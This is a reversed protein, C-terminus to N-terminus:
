TEKPRWGYLAHIFEGLVHKAAELKLGRSVGVVSVQVVSQGSQIFVTQVVAVRLGSSIDPM